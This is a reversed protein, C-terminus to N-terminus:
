VIRKRLLRWSTLEGFRIGSSDLVENYGIIWRWVVLGLVQVEALGMAGHRNYVYHM